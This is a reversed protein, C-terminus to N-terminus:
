GFLRLTEGIPLTRKTDDVKSEIKAMAKKGAFMEIAGMQASAVVHQRKEEPALKDFDVVSLKKLSRKAARRMKNRDYETSKVIESDNLRKLGVNHEVGFVFGKSQQLSRRASTLSALAFDRVDRGIAKSLMDYTIMDGIQAEVLVSELTKTDSSKEFNM